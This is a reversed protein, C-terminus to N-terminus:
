NLNKQVQNVYEVLREDGAVYKRLAYKYASDPMHHEDLYEAIKFKEEKTIEYSKITTVGNVEAQLNVHINTAAQIKRMTPTIMRFIREDLKERCITVFDLPYLRTYYYYDFVDFNPNCIINDVIQKIYGYFAPSPQMCQKAFENHLGPHSGYIAHYMNKIEKVTFGGYMSCYEEISLNSEIISNLINLYIEVDNEKKIKILSYKEKYKKYLTNLFDFEDTLENDLEALKRKLLQLKFNYTDETMNFRRLKEIAQEETECSLLECFIYEYNSEMNKELYKLYEQKTM